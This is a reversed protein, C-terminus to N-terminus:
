RRLRVGPGGERHENDELFVIGSRELASQIANLTHTKMRPVGDGIEARQVTAAGVGAEIALRRHSWRLIARAARIQASTLLVVPHHRIEASEAVPALENTVLSTLVDSSIAIVEHSIYRSDSRWGSAPGRRPSCVTAVRTISRSSGNSAAAATTAIRRPAEWHLTLHHPRATAAGPLGYPRPVQLSEVCRAAPAQHVFYQFIL